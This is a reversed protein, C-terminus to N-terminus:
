WFVSNLANDDWNVDCTLQHFDVTYVLTSRSEQRLSCIKTTATQVKDTKGFTDNFKTLFDDLDEFLSFNKELLSAFWSLTAGSLL